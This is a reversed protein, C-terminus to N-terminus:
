RADQEKEISLAPLGAASEPLIGSKCNSDAVFNKRAHEVFYRSNEISANLIGSLSGSPSDQITM